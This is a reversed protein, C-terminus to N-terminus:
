GHRKELVRLRQDQQLLAERLEGFASHLVGFAEDVQALVESLTNSKEAELRLQQRDVSSLRQRHAELKPPAPAAARRRPTRTSAASPTTSM